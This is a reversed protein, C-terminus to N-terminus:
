LNEYLTLKQTFRRVTEPSGANPHYHNSSPTNTSLMPSEINTEHKTESFSYGSITNNNTPTNVVYNRNSNRSISRQNSYAQENKSALSMSNTEITIPVSLQRNMQSNSAATIALYKDNPLPSPPISNPPVNHHTETYKYTEKYEKPGPMVGTGMNNFPIFVPQTFFFPYQQMWNQQQPLNPFGGITESKKYSAYNELAQNMTENAFPQRNTQSEYAAYNTTTQYNPTDQVQNSTSMLKTIIRSNSARGDASKNFKMVHIM